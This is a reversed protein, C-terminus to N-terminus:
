KSTVSRAVAVWAAIASALSALASIFAVWWLKSGQISREAEQVRRQLEFDSARPHRVNQKTGLIQDGTPDVGLAKVRQDLEEGALLQKGM